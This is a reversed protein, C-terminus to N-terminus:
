CFIRASSLGCPVYGSQQPPISAPASATTPALQLTSALQVTTKPVYVTISAPLSKSVADSADQTSGPASDILKDVEKDTLPYQLEGLGNVEELTVVRPTDGLLSKRAIPKSETPRALTTFGELRKIAEDIADSLAHHAAASEGADSETTRATTDLPTVEAITHTPEQMRSQTAHSPSPGQPGLLKSLSTPSSPPPPIDWRSARVTRPRPPATVTISGVAATPEPPTYKPSLTSAPIAPAHRDPRDPVTDNSREEIPPLLHRPPNLTIIATGTDTRGGITLRAEHLIYTDLEVDENWLACLHPVAWILSASLSLPPAPPLFPLGSLCYYYDLVPLLCCDGVMPPDDRLSVIPSVPRSIAPM